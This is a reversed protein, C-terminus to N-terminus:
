FDVGVGQVSAPTTKTYPTCHIMDISSLSPLISTLACEDVTYVTHPNFDFVFCVKRVTSGIWGLM